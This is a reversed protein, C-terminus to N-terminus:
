TDTAPPVIIVAGCDIDVSLWGKYGTIYEKTFYLDAWSLAKVVSIDSIPIEHM